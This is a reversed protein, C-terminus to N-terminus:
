RSLAQRALKLLQIVEVGLSAGNIQYSYRVAELLHFLHAMWSYIVWTHVLGLGSIRITLIAKM